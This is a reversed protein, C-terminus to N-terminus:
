RVSIQIHEFRDRFDSLMKVADTVANTKKFITHQSNKLARVAIIMVFLILSTTGAMGALTILNGQKIRGVIRNSAHM